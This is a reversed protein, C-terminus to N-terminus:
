HVHHGRCERGRQAGCALRRSRGKNPQRSAPWRRCRRRPRPHLLPQHRPLHRRRPRLHRQLQLPLTQLRPRIPPPGLPHPHRRWLSNRSTQRPPSILDPLPRPFVPLPRVTQPSNVASSQGPTAQSYKCPTEPLYQLKADAMNARMCTALSVCAAMAMSHHRQFWRSPSHRKPAM